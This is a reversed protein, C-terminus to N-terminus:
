QPIFVPLSKLPMVFPAAWGSSWIIIGRSATSKSLFPISFFIIFSLSLLLFVSISHLLYLYLSPCLSLYFWFSPSLSLSFSQILLTFLSFNHDFLCLTLLYVHNLLRYYVISLFLPLILYLTFYFYLSLSLILCQVFFLFDFYSSLSSQSYSLLSYFSLFM